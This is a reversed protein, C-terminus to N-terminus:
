ADGGRNGAAAVIAAFAAPDLAAGGVLGGDVDPQAFLAAANAANLSGGYLIPTAEALGRRLLGHVEQAQQPTAHRGTGIAWVPEYAVVLQEIRARHPGIARDLQRGVVEGTAGAEREAATEGVCLIPRLGADLLAGLKREVAADTEGFQTRRESHGVIVYRCRLERLMPAAIEGTYPGSTEWHVNQAGLLLPGDRLVRGVAELATFPPCIVVEVGAEPSVRQRLQAALEAAASPTGNMKWNGAVLRRRLPGATM